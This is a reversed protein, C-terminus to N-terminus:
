LLKSIIREIETQEIGQISTLQGKDATKVDDPSVFGNEVLKHASSESIEFVEALHKSAKNIKEEMSEVKKPTEIELVIKHKLLKSALNINQLRKGCALNSQEQTVTVELMNRDKITVSQVKAPQLANMAYQKIDEDFPIIDIREGNLESMINKVRIGRLGVCAGVPDVRTENSKVSIKTRNGPDRAVNIIVVIGDHIESVEREFLRKVFDPHSRSVILSPGSSHSDVDVLLVNIREGVIYTEGPIKDLHSL